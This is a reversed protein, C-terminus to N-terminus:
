ACHIARWPPKSPPNKALEQSWPEMGQCHARKPSAPRCHWALATEAGQSNEIKAAHHHNSMQSHACHPVLFSIEPRMTKTKIMRVCANSSAQAIASQFRFSLFRNTGHMAAAGCKSGPFYTTWLFECKWPTETRESPSIDRWTDWRVCSCTHKRDNSQECYRTNLTTSSHMIPESILVRSKSPPPTNSMALANVPSTMVLTSRSSMTSTKGCSRTCKQSFNRRGGNLTANVDPCLMNCSASTVRLMSGTFPMAAARAGITEEQPFSNSSATRPLSGWSVMAMKFRPCSGFAKTKLMLSLRISLGSRTPKLVAEEAATCTRRWPRASGLKAVPRCRGRKNATWHASGEAVSTRSNSSRCPASGLMASPQIEGISSAEMFFLRFMTLSKSSAPAFGNCTPASHSLENIEASGSLEVKRSMMSLQQLRIMGCSTMKRWKLTKSSKTGLQSM